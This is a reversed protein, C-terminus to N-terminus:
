SFFDNLTNRPIGREIKQREKRIEDNLYTYKAPLMQKAHEKNRRGEIFQSDYFIEWIDNEAKEKGALLRNVEDESIEKIQRDYGLYNANVLYYDRHCKVIGPRDCLRRCSWELYLDSVLHEPSIEAYYLDGRVSFRSHARMREYEAMVTMAMHHYTVSTEDKHSLIAYIDPYYSSILKVLEDPKCSRHRLSYMIMLGASISCRARGFKPPKQWLVTRTNMPINKVIDGAYQVVEGHYGSLKLELDRKNKGCVMTSGPEKKLAIAAKVVSETEKLYGIIM